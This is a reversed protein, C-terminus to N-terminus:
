SVGDRMIIAISKAAKWAVLCRRKLNVRGHGGSNGKSFVSRIM